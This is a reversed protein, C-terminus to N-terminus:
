RTLISLSYSKSHFLSPPVNVSLEEIHFEASEV